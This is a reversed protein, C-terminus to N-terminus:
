GGYSKIRETQIEEKPLQKVPPNARFAKSSPNDFAQSREKAAKVAEEKSSFSKTGPLQQGYRNTVRGFVNIWQGDKRQITESREHAM